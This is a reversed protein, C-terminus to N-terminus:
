GERQEERASGVIKEDSYGAVRKYDDLVARLETETIVDEIRDFPENGARDQVMQIVTDPPTVRNKTVVANALPLRLEEYRLLADAPKAAALAEALAHADLIAQMAGNSGRPVMPHAADGALTVCGFTWRSVPDRDVMPYKLIVQANEFMAPVDLWDFRWREFHHAFEDLRGPANWEVPAADVQRIEVVWNLLQRGEEDVDNRIPYVVIKGTDLTGARVHSGGSLIPEHPSVGRWMNVGSFVPAGESPYFQRRVASHIGDCGIVADGAVSRAGADGDTPVFHAVVGAADAEVGVCSHNLSVKDPGLRAYVADLLVQHLDARHILFSPWRSSAPDCFILQGHTTFFCSDKFEVAVRRLADLLGLDTLKQTGHPLLSLGVGLPKIEPAAEYVHCGIGRQDLELALTLGCIGGGVIVVGM